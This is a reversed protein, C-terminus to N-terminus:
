RLLGRHHRVVTSYTPDVVIFVVSEDNDAARQLVSGTDKKPDVLDSVDAQVDRLAKACDAAGPIGTIQTTTTSGPVTVTVPKGEVLDAARALTQTALAESQEAAATLADVAPGDDITEDVEYPVEATLDVTTGALTVTAGGNVVGNAAVQQAGVPRPVVVVNKFVREAVATVEQEQSSFVNLLQDLPGVVRHRTTVSLRPRVLAPLLPAILSSLPPAAVTPLPAPAPLPALTPLPTPTASPLTSVVGGAAGTAANGADVVTKTVGNALTTVRTVTGFALSAAPAALADLCASVSSQETRASVFNTAGTRQDLEPLRDPGKLAEYDALGCNGGPVKTDGGFPGGALGDDTFADSLRDNVTGARRAEICATVRADRARLAPPLSAVDSLLDPTATLPLRAAGALAGAEAAQQLEAAAAQRVLIGLGAAGAPLVVFVLVLCVLVAVAGAEREYREGVARVAM